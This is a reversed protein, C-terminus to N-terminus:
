RGCRRTISKPRQPLTGPPTPRRVEAACSAWHLLRVKALRRQQVEVIEPDIVCIVRYREVYALLRTEARVGAEIARCSGADGPFRENVAETAKAAAEDLPTYLNPGGALLVGCPAVLALAAVAVRLIVPAATLAVNSIAALTVIRIVGKALWRRFLSFVVADDGPCGIGIHPM